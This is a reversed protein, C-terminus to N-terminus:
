TQREDGGQVGEKNVPSGTKDQFGKDAQEAASGGALLDDTRGAGAQGAAGAPKDAAVEGTAGAGMTAASTSGGTLQELSRGKDEKGENQTSM